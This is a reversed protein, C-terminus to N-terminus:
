SQPMAHPAGIAPQSGGCAALIALFLVSLNLTIRLNNMGPQRM